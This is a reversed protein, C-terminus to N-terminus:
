FPMDDDIVQTIQPKVDTRPVFPIAPAKPPIPAALEPFNERASWGCIKFVPDICNNADGREKTALTVVPFYLRGKLNYPPGLKQFAYFAGKSTNTFTLLDGLHEEDARM